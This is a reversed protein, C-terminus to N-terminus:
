TSTQGLWALVADRSFRWEGGVRRGPLSGDEALEAIADETTQLLAAAEGLALVETAAPRLELKGVPLGRQVLESVVQRKSLGREAAARDLADAEAAPLRVYLPRETM